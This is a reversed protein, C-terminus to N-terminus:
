DKEADDLGKVVERKVGKLIKSLAQEQLAIADIRATKKKKDAKNFDRM